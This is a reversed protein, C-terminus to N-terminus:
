MIRLYSVHSRKFIDLFNANDASAGHTAADHHVEDVGTVRDGPQVDIALHQLLAQDLDGRDVLARNGLLTKVIGFRLRTNGTDAGGLVVCIQGVHVQHNFGDIFVHIQLLLDEGLQVLRNLRGRNQGGVGGIQIDVFDSGRGLTRSLNQTQVEEARRVDHLQQFDNTALSSGLVDHVGAQSNALLDALFCDQGAVAVAKDAVAHQFFVGALGAFHYQFTGGRPFDVLRQLAEAHRHAGVAHVVDHTNVQAPTGTLQGADTAALRDHPQVVLQTFHLTETLLAAVAEVLVFCAATLRDM